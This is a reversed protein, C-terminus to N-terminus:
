LCFWVSERILIQFAARLVTTNSSAVGPFSSHQPSFPSHHRLTAILVVVLLSVVILTGVWVARAISSSSLYLRLRSRTWLLGILLIAVVTVIEQVTLRATVTWEVIWSGVISAAYQACLVCCLAVMLIRETLM